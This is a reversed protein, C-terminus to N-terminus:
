RARDKLTWLWLGSMEGEDSLVLHLFGGANGEADLHQPAINALAAHTNISEMQFDCLPMAHTVLDWALSGSIRGDFIQAACRDTMLMRGDIRWSADLNNLAYSGYTLAAWQMVGDRVKLAAPAWRDLRSEINGAATLRDLAFARQGGTAAPTCRSDM